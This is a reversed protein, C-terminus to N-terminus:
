RRSVKASQIDTITSNMVRKSVPTHGPWTRVCNMLQDKEAQKIGNATLSATYVDPEPNTRGSMMYTRTGHWFRNKCEWAM